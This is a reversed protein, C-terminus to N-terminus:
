PKIAILGHFVDSAEHREDVPLSSILKSIRAIVNQPYGFYNALGISAIVDNQSVVQRPMQCCLLKISSKSGMACHLHEDRLDIELRVDNNRELLM